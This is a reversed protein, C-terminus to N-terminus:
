DKNNFNEKLDSAKDSTKNSVNDSADNFKDQAQDTVNSQAQNSQEKVKSQTNNAKDKVNNATASFANAQKNKANDKKSSAIREGNVHHYQIIALLNIYYIFLRVIVVIISLAYVIVTAVNQSMNGTFINVLQSVPNALLIVILNLLLIGLYLKFWTKHGNKIKSFGQKVSQLVGAKPDKTFSLTYNVIMIVFLWYILSLIFVVLTAAVIQITLSIGLAHSSSSISNQIAGFGKLILFNLLKGIFLNLIMLVIFFVLTILAMVISKLYKGKTFTSFINSFKIKDQSIAKDITFIVGSALPYVVFLYVIIPVLIALILMMIASGVPQQIAQAMAFKYLAPQVPLIAVYALAMVIIFGVITFLLTKANQPKLNQIALKHYKFM